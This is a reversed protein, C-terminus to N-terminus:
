IRQARPLAAWAWLFLLIMGADAWAWPIWLRPIGGHLQYWLVVGVYSVKLSVGYLIQERRRVPDAAILFFIVGFLVLLLASFQVYGLHNPPVVGTVRFVASPAVLFVGGLVADYIGSLIFLIRIWTVSV